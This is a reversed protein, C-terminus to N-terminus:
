DSSLTRETVKGYEQSNNYGGNHREQNINMILAVLSCHALPITM